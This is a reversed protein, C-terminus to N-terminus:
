GFLKLGTVGAIIFSLFLFKLVSRKERFFSMGILVSGAAGIGAWVAYGTGVPIDKMAVSLLYFSLAGSLVTLITYKKNKFGVSLKMMIVFAVEFLGAIVLILWSM